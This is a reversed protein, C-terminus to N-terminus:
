VIKKYELKDLEQEKLRVTELQITSIAVKYKDHMINKIAQLIREGEQFDEIVVHASLAKMGSTILWAHVHHLDIVGPVSKLDKELQALDLDQPTVDILIRVSDRILGYSAYILIFAFVIGAISDAIYIEGLAIFTAAIIIAISGLFANIVHWFSGRVNLSEKQGKYMIILSGVELWIGGVAVIFMPLPPIKIPDALRQFGRYLVLGAMGLLIMGNFFAALIETRIYGFTKQPTPPKAAYHMALLSLGIAVATSLEHAADALMALSKTLLAVILEFVFYLSILVLSIKLAKTSVGAAHHQPM